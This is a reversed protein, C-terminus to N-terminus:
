PSDVPLGARGCQRARWEKFDSYFVGYSHLEKIRCEQLTLMVHTNNLDEAM